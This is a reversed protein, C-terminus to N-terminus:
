LAHRTFRTLASVTLYSGDQISADLGDHPKEGESDVWEGDIYNQLDLVETFPEKLIAM